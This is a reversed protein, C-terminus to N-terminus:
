PRRRDGSLSFRTKGKQAFFLCSGKKRERRRRGRVSRVAEDGRGQRLDLVDLDGGVGPQDDEELLEAESGAALHDDDDGIDGDGEGEVAASAGVRARLGSADEVAGVGM